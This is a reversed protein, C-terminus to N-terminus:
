PRRDVVISDLLVGLSREDAGLGSRAPVFADALLLLDGPGDVATALDIAYTGFGAGPRVTGAKEGNWYVDLTATVGAPRTAALELWLRLPTGAPVALRPLRIRAEPGTWRCTRGNSEEATHFGDLLYPVDASGVDVRAPLAAPPSSASPVLAYFALSRRVPAVTWGAGAVSRATTDYEISLDGAPVMEVDRLARRWEQGAAAAVDVVLRVPRRDAVGAILRGLPGAGAGPTALLSERGFSYQAALAAHSPTRADWM